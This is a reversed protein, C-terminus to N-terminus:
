KKDGGGKGIKKGCCVNRNIVQFASQDYKVEMEGLDVRGGKCERGKGALSYWIWSHQEYICQSMTLSTALEKYSFQTRGWWGVGVRLWWSHFAVSWCRHWSKLSGRWYSGPHLTEKLSLSPATVSDKATEWEGGHTQLWIMAFSAGEVLVTPPLMSWPSGCPKWCFCPVCVDVHGRPPLVSTLMVEPLM